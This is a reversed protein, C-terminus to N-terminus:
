SKKEVELNGPRRRSTKKAESEEEAEERAFFLVRM